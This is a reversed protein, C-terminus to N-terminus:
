FDGDKYQKLLDQMSDDYLNICFGLEDLNFFIDACDECLYMSALYVEEGYIREEIESLPGRMRFFEAVLDGMNIVKGCSKCKKRRSLYPMNIYNSPNLYCEGDGDWEYECGCSLGM